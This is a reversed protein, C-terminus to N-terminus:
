YGLILGLLCFAIGAILLICISIPPFSKDSDALNFYNKINQLEQKLM